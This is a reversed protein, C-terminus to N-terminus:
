KYYVRLGTLRVLNRYARRFNDWFKRVDKYYQLWDLLLLDIVASEIWDVYIKYGM